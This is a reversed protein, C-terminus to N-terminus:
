ARSEQRMIVNRHRVASAPETTIFAPGQLPPWFSGPPGGFQNIQWTILPVSPATIPRPSQSLRHATPGRPVPRAPPRRRITDGHGRFSFGHSSGKPAQGSVSEDHPSKRSVSSRRSPPTQPQLEEEGGGAERNRALVAKLFPTLVNPLSLSRLDVAMRPVARPDRGVAPGAPGPRVTEAEWVQAPSDSVGPPPQVEAFGLSRGRYGPWGPGQGRSSFGSATPGDWGPCGRRLSCPASAQPPSRGPLHCKASPQIVPFLDEVPVSLGDLLSTAPLPPRWPRPGQMKMASFRLPRLGLGPDRCVHGCLVPCPGETGTCADRAPPCPPGQRTCGPLLCDTRPTSM